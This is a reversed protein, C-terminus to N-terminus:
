QITGTYMNDFIVKETLVNIDEQKTKQPIVNPKKHM